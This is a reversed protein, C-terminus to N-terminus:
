PTYDVQVHSAEFINNTASCVGYFRVSRGQEAASRVTAITQDGNPTERINNSGIAVANHDACAASQIVWVGSPSLAFTRSHKPSIQIAEIEQWETWVSQAWSQPAYSVLVFSIVISLSKISISQM